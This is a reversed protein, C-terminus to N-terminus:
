DKLYILVGVAFDTSFEKDNELKFKNCTPFHAFYKKKLQKTFLTLKLEFAKINTYLDLILSNAEQLKLYLENLFQTIDVLFALKWLWSLDALETVVHNKVDYIHRNRFM